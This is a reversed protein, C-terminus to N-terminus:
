TSTKQYDKQSFKTKKKLNITSAKENCCGKEVPQQIKLAFHRVTENDKKVLTAAEVQAYYANKKSFFSNKLHKYLSLGTQNTLTM